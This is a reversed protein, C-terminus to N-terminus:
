FLFAVTFLARRPPQPLWFSGFSNFYTREDTINEINLRFQFQNLEYGLALSMKTFAPQQRAESNDKDGFYDSQYFVGYGVSFGEILKDFEYNAWLGFSHNPANELENGQQFIVDDEISTSLYTYNGTISLQETLKGNLDLEIGRSRQAESTYLIHGDISVESANYTLGIEDSLSTLIFCPQNEKRLDFVALTVGLKENFLNAKAGAEFQEGFTPELFEEPKYRHRGNVEFSKAYSGYFSVNPKWKYVIGVRPIVPRDIVNQFDDPREAENDYVRDRRYWNFRVGLLIHLQEDFAMVQNQLNLGSRLLIDKYPSADTNLSLINPMISPDPNNFSGVSNPFREYTIRDSSYTYDFGVLLNHDLSGTRFSYTAELLNAYNKLDNFTASNGYRIIPENLLIDQDGNILTVDLAQIAPVSSPDSANIGLNSLAVTDGPIYVQSQWLGRNLRPVSQYQNTLRLQLNPLLSYNLTSILSTETFENRSVPNGYFQNFPVAQVDEFSSGPVRIGPDEISQDDRFVGEINWRLKDNPKILLSPAVMIYENNVYDRYSDSKEYTTNLRFSVSGDATIRKNIDISPRILGWSGTTFRFHTFDFDQPKKTVFNIVGGPSVDGYLVSTPGKLVQVEEIHDSFHNGENAILLGNRRFNTNGLLFGRASISLRRSGNGWASTNQIGSVNRFTERLNIIQQQQILDRDVIQVAMPIDILEMNSRTASVIQKRQGLVTVNDLADHSEKLYFVIEVTENSRIAVAKSVSMYGIMSATVTHEGAPLDSLVFTGDQYTSTGTQNDGLVINVMFLPQSDEGFVTGSIKGQAQASAYSGHMIAILLAFLKLYPTKM